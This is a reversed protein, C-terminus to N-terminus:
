QSKTEGKRPAASEEDIKKRDAVAKQVKYDIIAKELAEDYASSQQELSGWTAGVLLMFTMAIVTLAVLLRDVNDKEFLYVSLGGVLSLTAPLVVKIAEGGSLGAMVGTTIGLFSMSLFVFFATYMPQKPRGGIRYVIVSVGGWVIPTILIQAAFRWFTFQLLYAPIM